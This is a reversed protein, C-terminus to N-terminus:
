TLIWDLPLTCSWNSPCQLHYLSYPYMSVDSWLFHFCFNVWWDNRMVGTNAVKNLETLGLQPKYATTLPYSIHPMHCNCHLLANHNCSLFLWTDYAFYMWKWILCWLLCKDSLKPSEFIFFMVCACAYLITMQIKNIYLLLINYLGVELQAGSIYILVNQLSGAICNLMLNQGFYFIRHNWGLIVCPYRSLKRFKSNFYNDM